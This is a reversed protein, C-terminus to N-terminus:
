NLLKGQRARPTKGDRHSTRISSLQQVSVYQKQPVEKCSENVFLKYFKWFGLFCKLLRRGTTLSWHIHHFTSSYCKTRIYLYLFSYFCALSLICISMCTCAANSDNCLKLICLFFDVDFICVVTYSLCFSHFLIYLGLWNFLMYWVQVQGYSHKRFDLSLIQNALISYFPNQPKIISVRLHEELHRQQHAQIPISLPKSFCFM